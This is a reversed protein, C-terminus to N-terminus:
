KVVPVCSGNVCQLPGCCQGSNTCAGCAGQVCAQNGCDKCSGCTPTGADILGIPPCPTGAGLVGRDYHIRTAASAKFSGAFIAGYIDNSASWDVLANAAYLEGGLRVDASLRLTDAGGVYTRSLAPYNPSGIVLTESAKLNGAIFIDLEATPDLVFALSDSTTVDGDIFLATRGHAAITVPNSAAIKTLYYLGCPLDLRLGGSPSEFVTPDLGITANDNNPPRAAAVVAAVPIIKSPTCDCAAPVSPVASNTGKVTVGSLTGAVQANGDVTFPTSSAWSGGLHMDTKVETSPGSSHYTGSGSEWFTGGITVADSWLTVDRDVGVGGGLQGPKYPGTTSNYADTFLTASVALDTCSCLSWDFTTQAVGGLCSNTGGTGVVIPPGGGVCSTPGTGGVPVVGVCHGKACGTGAACKTACDGCHDNDNSLDVCTNSCVSLGPLCGTDCAGASCAQAGTCAIGCGGCNNPDANTPVCAGNCFTQYPPCACVGNACGQGTGCAHGCVGCNQPDTKTNSCTASDGAEGSDGGDIKGSDTTLTPSGDDGSGISSDVEPPPAADQDNPTPDFTANSGKGCAAFATVLVIAFISLGVRSTARRQKM